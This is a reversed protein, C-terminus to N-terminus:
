CLAPVVACGTINTDPTSIMTKTAIDRPQSSSQAMHCMESWLHATERRSQRRHDTCDVISHFISNAEYSFSVLLERHSDAPYFATALHQCLRGSISFCRYSLNTKKESMQLTMFCAIHLNHMSNIVSMNPQIPNSLIQM